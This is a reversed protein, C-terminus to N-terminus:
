KLQREKEGGSTIRCNSIKKIKKRFSMNRTDVVIDLLTM